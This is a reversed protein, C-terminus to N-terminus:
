GGEQCIVSNSKPGLQVKQVSEDLIMALAKLARYQATRIAGETKGLLKSMEAVSYGKIIRLDIIAQQEQSLKAMASELLLRQAIDNQEDSCAIEEQNIGELDVMIWTRKKKRWRDRILNLSVTKM